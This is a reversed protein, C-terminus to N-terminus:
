CHTGQQQHGLRRRMISLLVPSVDSCSERSRKKRPVRQCKPIAADTRSMRLSREDSRGNAIHVRRERSRSSNRSRIDVAGEGFTARSGTSDTRDSSFDVDFRGRSDVSCIPLTFEKSLLSKGENVPSLYDFNVRGSRVNTKRPWRQQGGTM